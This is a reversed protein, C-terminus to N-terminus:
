EADDNLPSIELHSTDLTVLMSPMNAEADDNLPSRELHSTDLTSLMSPINEPADDNACASQPAHSVEVASLNAINSSEGPRNHVVLVVVNVVVEVLLVPVVVGRTCEGGRTCDSDRNIGVVVTAGLSVESM